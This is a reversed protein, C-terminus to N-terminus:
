EQTFVYTGKVLDLLRNMLNRKPIEEGPNILGLLNFWWRALVECECVRCVPNEKFIDMTHLRKRLNCHGTMLGSVARIQIRSLPLLDAALSQSPKGIMLKSQRHGALNTWIYRINYDAGHLFPGIPQPKPSELYQNLGLLHTQLGKGQWPM